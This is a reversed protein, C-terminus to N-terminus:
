TSFICKYLETKIRIALVSKEYHEILYFARKAQSASRASLVVQGPGNWHGGTVILGM